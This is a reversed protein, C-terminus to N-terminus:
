EKGRQQAMRRRFAELSLQEGVTASVQDVEDDHGHGHGHGHGYGHAHDHAHDHDDDHDHQHDHHHGRAEHHDGGDRGHYAGPEPDFAADVHEVTAGLSVLMRELVPDREILVCEKSLAAAVHRNALHYVARLLELPGPTTVRALPQDAARVLVGVGDESVVVDGDRLVTGRALFIAVECGDECSAVYRSRVREDYTMRLVHSPEVEGAARMVRSLQLM